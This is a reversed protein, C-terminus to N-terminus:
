DLKRVVLRSAGKDFIGTVRSVVELLLLERSSKDYAFDALYYDSQQTHWKEELNAGDWGFCYLSSRSYSHKNTRYWAELNKPVLLEDNGTQIIRQDLFVQRNGAGDAKSGDTDYRVFNTESGGYEESSKWLEDGSQAFVRLYGDQAAIIPNPEGNLGKLLNFNYLYGQKPLKVPNKLEYGQATRVVESVDGSFDTRSAMQQAYLKKVGGAGTVARFFYPLPGAIKKLRTGDVTWVQSVLTEGSMITVYVEPIKNGGLDITDVALVKEYVKFPIEALLKLEAGQRYYRLTDEGVVFLEREGGPLTRGVALGRLTGPMKLILQGKKNVTRTPVIMGSPAASPQPAIVVPAVATPMAATPMVATPMVAAPAVAASLVAKDIAESLSKALTGVAPILEDPGKGQAYARTIVTGSVDTAAADLSFISGSLLYSGSVTIQANQQKGITAVKQNALRSLLLLQITSKMEEPKSAGSVSFEAVYVTVPASWATNCAAIVLLFVAVITRVNMHM